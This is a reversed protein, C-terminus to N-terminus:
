QFIGVLFQKNSISIISGTIVEHTIKRWIVRELATEKLKALTRGTSGQLKRRGDCGVGEGGGLAKQEAIDVM